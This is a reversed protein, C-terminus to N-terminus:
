EFRCRERLNAIAKSSGKLPIAYTAVTKDDDTLEVALTNYASLQRAFNNIQASPLSMSFGSISPQWEMGRPSRNDFGIKLGTSRSTRVPLRLRVEAQRDNASCRLEVESSEFEINAIYTRTDTVPNYIEEYKWVHEPAAAAVMTLACFAFATTFASISKHTRM